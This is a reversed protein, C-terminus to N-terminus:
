PVGFHLSVMHGDVAAGYLDGQQEPQQAGRVGVPVTHSRM